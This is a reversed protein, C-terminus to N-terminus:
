YAKSGIDLPALSKVESREDVKISYFEFGNSKEVALVSIVSNRKNSEVRVVHM